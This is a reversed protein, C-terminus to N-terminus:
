GHTQPYAIDLESRSLLFYEPQQIGRVVTLQPSSRDQNFPTARSAARPLSLSAAHSAVGLGQMDCAAHQVPSFSCLAAVLDSKRVGIRLHNPEEYAKKAGIETDPVLVHADRAVQEGIM